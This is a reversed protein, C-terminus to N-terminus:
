GYVVEEIKSAHFLSEYSRSIMLWHSLNGHNVVVRVVAQNDPRYEFVL